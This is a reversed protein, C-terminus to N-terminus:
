SDEEDFFGHLLKGLRELARLHRTYVAAESIQLVAAIQKIPLHELHRLVLVERDREPLRELAQRVQQVIEQRELRADPRSGNSCLRQVLELASDDPWAPIEMEERLVSRRRAGIHRRHLQTLRQLAIQRLWPYFPLPREDLYRPFQRNAELLVDQVVDSPDVRGALRRSLRLSIMRKLRRRHRDLLLQRAPSDGQSAQDLLQDTDPRSHPM